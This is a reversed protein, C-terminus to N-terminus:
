DDLRTAVAEIDIHVISSAAARLATVGFELRNVQASARVHAVGAGEWAQEIRLTVPRTQGHVTLEGEARPGGDGDVMHFSEFVMTPFSAVDLLKSSKVHEDRKAMPTAFSAPDVVARLSTRGPPDTVVFDGDTIALTGRITFLGFKRASFRLTSSGPDLRYHGPRLAPPRSTKQDITM